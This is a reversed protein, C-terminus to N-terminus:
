TGSSLIRIFGMFRTRTDTIANEATAIACGGAAPRPVAGGRRTNETVEVDHGSPPSTGM